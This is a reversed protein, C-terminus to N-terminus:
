QARQHCCAVPKAHTPFSIAKPQVTTDTTVRALDKIRLAGAEHAIRLSEPLLLELKAGLGTSIQASMRSRTSSSSRAPSISSILTM